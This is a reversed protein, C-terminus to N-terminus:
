PRLLGREALQAMLKEIDVPKTLYGDCHAGFAKGVNRGDGLSSTMLICAPAVPPREHGGELRRIETLAAHGDVDPMLIDLTILDFAEDHRLGHAVKQVAEAGTAAQTVAGYRGLAVALLRRCVLDDDVILSRM